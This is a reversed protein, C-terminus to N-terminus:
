IIKDKADDYSKKASIVKTVSPIFAYYIPIVLLIVWYPHWLKFYAGLFFYASIALIWIPFSSLTRNGLFRVFEGPILAFFFVFWFDSAGNKVTTIIVIYAVLAILLFISDLLSALSNFFKKRKKEIDNKSSSEIIISDDQIKIPM